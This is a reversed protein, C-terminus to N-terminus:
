RQAMTKWRRHVWWQEPRRLVVTRPCRQLRTTLRIAESTAHEVTPTEFRLVHRGDSERWSTAPVVPARQSRLSPSARSRGRLRASSIVAIGDPPARQDFAFVIADGRWGTPRM